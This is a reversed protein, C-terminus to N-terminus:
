RFRVRANIGYGNRAYEIREITQKFLRNKEEPKTDLLQWVNELEEIRELREQDSIPGSIHVIEKLQQIENEKKVILDKQHDLRTRYEQKTLDASVYQDKLRLIGEHLTELETEKLRLMTKPIMDSTSVQIRRSRIEEEYEHLSEIVAVELHELDAGPNGCRNGFPDVKQCKKVLIRGNEKPQFQLSSGCKGCFVLGSCVYTGHRTRKMQMRRRALVKLIEAYEEPTKVAPHADEVVVWNKRPNVRFPASKRNKHLGGSTKGYIVRGLHVENMTLRYIVSEQRLKGKPSPVGTRNLEWCISACTSGRLLREKIFQYIELKQGDVALSRAEADYAYRFPAPGNTWHGLRAGIKKGRQFRKKIM